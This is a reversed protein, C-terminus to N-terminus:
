KKGYAKFNELNKNKTPIKGLLLDLFKDKKYYLFIGLYCNRVARHPV